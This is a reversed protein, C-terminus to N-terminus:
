EIDGYDMLYMDRCSAIYGSLYRDVGPDQGASLALQDKIVAEKQQLAQFVQKTVPHSKWEMFETQTIM